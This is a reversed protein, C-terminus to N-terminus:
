SAVRHLAEALTAPRDEGEWEHIVFERLWKGGFDATYDYPGGGFRPGRKYGLIRDYVAQGAAEGKRCFEDFKAQDASVQILAAKHEDEGRGDLDYWCLLIHQGPAVTVRFYCDGHSKRTPCEVLVKAGDTELRGYYGSPSDYESFYFSCVGAM